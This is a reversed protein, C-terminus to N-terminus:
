LIRIHSTPTLPPPPPSPCLICPSIFSMCTFTYTNGIPKGLGAYYVPICFLVATPNCLGKSHQIIYIRPARSQVHVSLSPGSIKANSSWLNLHVSVSDVKPVNDVPQYSLILWILKWHQSLSRSCIIQLLRICCRM